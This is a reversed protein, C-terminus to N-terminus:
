TLERLRQFMLFVAVVLLLGIGIWFWFHILLIVASILALLATVLGITQIFASRLISELVVFLTLIIGLGAGMYGPALLVLAVIGFLLVSLSVAAWSEALRDFRMRRTTVPMNLNTIHARPDDQVGHKLRELRETLSQLIVANESHARRLNRVDAALVGIEKGLRTYEKALHPHGELGKWKMGLADLEAAKAPILAELQRQEKKIESCNKKLIRLADSPPPVKDLGAFGLPDYWSGRPSGDRNYMPGAPANEGSIPDRAFLGWLGRYQGIWPTSEDIVQPSWAKAQGAGIRLGDGRAYDVFPIRFPNISPQGLPGTWFEDLVQNFTKLWSLWSPLDLTVEAQYEGPRYYSAHSGAGSYVVPHGDVFDVQGTDDWRRRLEDGHFDHAAYALWEPILRGQEEYLYLSIMEWDAEHDNVGSFGSRWSDYCSFFWYQLVRWGNQRVARGYYVFKDEHARMHFYDIEAAAASAAPVRGRALFSLTFLADVVRPLLGGRALRGVGPHFDNKLIRRLRGQDALVQASESLSLPEIFRLYHVTGFAAPRPQVLKELTLEGQKVLLEDRGDPYHAWLSAEAVYRDVDTPFFQEGQTFCVVPEFRRLIDLDTATAAITPRDASPSM